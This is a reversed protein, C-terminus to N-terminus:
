AGRASSWSASRTRRAPPLLIRWPALIPSPAGRHGSPRGHARGDDQLGHGVGEAGVPQALAVARGDREVPDRQAHRAALEDTQETGVAGALRRQRLDRGAENARGGAADLDEPMAGAARGRSPARAVEGLQEAERAPRSGVLQEHQVLAEGARVARGVLALAQEREDPQRLGGPAAHLRHRLAHLLAETDSLREDLLV